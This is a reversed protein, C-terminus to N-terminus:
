MKQLTNEVMEKLVAPNGQGKSEKMCQGVLFGLVNTKGNKYDDVAKPNNALVSGVIANLASTDSIQALGLQEVVVSPDVDKVLIENLVKKGATGSITGDQILAIMKSLNAPTLATDSLEQKDDNLMKLIDGLLWNAISKADCLNLAVAEDFFDARQKQGSLLTADYDSLEFEQMYRQKKSLPLEPIELRLADVKEQPIIFTLLDPDPFYRYDQADEKTRMVINTGKVDDWRRTEQAIEGGNSVIEIQRNAEYEVARFVASFSNVNKMEVRTTLETTGKPRVSVNVDARLNGEQMKANSIGLYLLTDAITEMYVKAEEASRLDPESVIEILPVGCRNYDALTGGTEDDHILKGADEEIHIRTVGITRIDGDIMIDLHGKGCIPVDFQSIQYAKPLDPYFYNKRDSKTINNIECNLAHGMKIAYEAVQKNLVPLTGPMGTCVPCCLTNPEAGFQNKCSCFIKSNTNLEAHVELGIVIEYNNNM